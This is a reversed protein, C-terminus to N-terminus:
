DLYANINIRKNFRKLSSEPTDKEAPASSKPSSLKSLLARKRASILEEKKEIEEEKVEASVSELADLRRKVDELESALREIISLMDPDDISETADEKVEEIVEQKVEEMAKVGKGSLSSMYVNCMAVLSVDSSIIEDILGLELAEKASYWHESELKSEDFSACRKKIIDLQLVNAREVGPDIENPNFPNYASHIMISGFEAMKITDSALAILAAASAALGLIECHVHLNHCKFYDLIGFANYVFGGCSCIQLCIDSGDKVGDLSEVIHQLTNQEIDTFLRITHM